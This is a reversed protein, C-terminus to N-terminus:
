MQSGAFLGGESIASRLVAAARAEGRIRLQQQVFRVTPHIMVALIMGAIVAYRIKRSPISVPPPLANVMESREHSGAISTWRDLEEKKLQEFIPGASEAQASQRLEERVGYFCPLGLVAAAFLKWGISPVAFAAIIAGISAAIAWRQASSAIPGIAVQALAQERLRALIASWWQQYRSCIARRLSERLPAQQALVSAVGSLSADVSQFEALVASRQEMAHRGLYRELNTGSFHRGAVTTAWISIGHSALAEKRQILSDALALIDENLGRAALAYLSNSDALTISVRAHSEGLVRRFETLLMQDTRAIQDLVGVFDPLKTTSALLGIQRQVAARWNPVDGIRRFMESLAKWDPLGAHTAMAARAVLKEQFLAILDSDTSQITNLVSEFTTLGRYEPLSLLRLQNLIADRRRPKDDLVSYVRELSIWTNLNGPDEGAAERLTRLADRHMGAELLQSGRARKSEAQMRWRNSAIDRQQRLAEQQDERRRETEAELVERQQELEEERQEREKEAQERMFDLHEDHRRQEEEALEQMLENQHELQAARRGDSETQIRRTEELEYCRPCSGSDDYYTNCTWCRTRAM